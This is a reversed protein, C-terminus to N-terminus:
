GLVPAVQLVGGPYWPQTAVRVSSPSAPDLCAVVERHYTRAFDRRERGLADALMESTLWPDAVDGVVDRLTTWVWELPDGVLGVRCPKLVTARVARELEKADHLIEAPPVRHWYPDIRELMAGLETRARVPDDVRAVLQVADPLLVCARVEPFALRLRMWLTAVAPPEELPRHPRRATAVLQVTPMGAAWDLGTGFGLGSNDRHDRTTPVSGDPPGDRM